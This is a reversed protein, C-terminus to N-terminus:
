HASSRGQNVLRLVSKEVAGGERHEREDYANQKDDFRKYIAKVDKRLRALARRCGKGDKMAFQRIHRDLAHAMQAAIRGHVKEHAVTHVMFAKWRRAMDGTLRRAPKPFVYTIEADYGGDDVRCVGDKWTMKGRPSTKYQTQAMAKKMFAHRPGNRNMSRFLAHGNEGQVTYYKTTTTIRAGAEAADPRAMVAILVALCSFWPMRM